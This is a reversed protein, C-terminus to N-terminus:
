LFVWYKIPFDITEQLNERLGIWEIYWCWPDQILFGDPKRSNEPWASASSCAKVPAKWCGAGTGPAPNRLKVM